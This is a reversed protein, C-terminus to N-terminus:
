GQECDERSFYLHKWDGSLGATESLLKRLLFWIFHFNFINQVDQSLLSESDVLRLLLNFLLIKNLQFDGLIKNHFTIM